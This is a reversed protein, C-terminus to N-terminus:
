THMTKWQRDEFYKMNPTDKLITRTISKYYDQIKAKRPIYRANKNKIEKEDGSHLCIKINWVTQLYNTQIAKM